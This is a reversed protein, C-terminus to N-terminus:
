RADAWSGWCRLRETLHRLRALAGSVNKDQSHGKCEVFFVYRWPGQGSPRSNLSTMDIGAEKFVAMADALAGPQEHKVAFSVLTKWQKVNGVANENAVNADRGFVLFRTANDHQDQIDRALIGIGALPAAEATAIAARTGSRDEAVIEAARSTSEEEHLRAHPLNASLWKRCQVLAERHSHVHQIRSFGSLGSESATAASEPSQTHGLLCHRILVYREDSVSLSTLPNHVLIDLTQNVAGNTSNELPM